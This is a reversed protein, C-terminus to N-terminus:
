QMHQNIFGLVFALSANWNISIENCAYAAMRDIYARAPEKFPYYVNPENNVEDQREQNPGGVLFGPIPEDIGDPSMVRHHPQMPTKTGYGTVFSMGVANKGFIYDAIDLVSELYKPQKDLHYAYCGLVAYNLQDSNSGWHFIESPLRYPLSDMFAAMKDATKLIMIRGKEAPEFDDGTFHTVLTFWGLNEVDRWYAAKTIPNERLNKEIYNKYERKGTSTFLECAAWFFEDKFKSDNYPGTGGTELPEGINPNNRAWTWAAKARKICDKSFNRDVSKYVRGAMAMAAAFNLTSATSKGIVYRRSKTHHPMIFGDWKLPGVKFFVGGDDDQMRRMWELEFRVEDLLDCIKNGSEPIGLSDHMVSPFMEYLAMLTGVSIGANVIYKGYDGADMWGGSVDIIGSKGTSAHLSCATDPIGSERAFKGAFEPTLETSLRQYYFAKVSADFASRYIDSGINVDYEKGNNGAILKYRGPKTVEVFNGQSIYEGSTNWWGKPEVKGSYVFKGQDDFIAFDTVASDTVVFRKQAYPFYGLQNVRVQGPKAAQTECDNTLRINDLKFTGKRGTVGPRFDYSHVQEMDMRANVVVSDPQWWEFQRFRSFPVTVEQWGGVVEYSASWAENSGDVILVMCTQARESSYVDFKLASHKSWDMLSKNHHAIPYVMSGWVGIRYDMRVASSGDNENKDKTIEMFSQPCINTIWNTICVPKEFDNIIKDPENSVFDRWYQKNSFADLKKVFKM